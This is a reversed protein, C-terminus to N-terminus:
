FHSKSGASKMCISGIVIVGALLMLWHHPALNNVFYMIEYEIRAMIRVGKLLRSEPRNKKLERFTSAAQLTAM